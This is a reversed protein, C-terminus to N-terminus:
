LWNKGFRQRFEAPTWNYHYMAIEQGMSKLEQNLGRWNDHIKKHCDPCVSIWLGLEKSRSRYSTGFYIEHRVLDGGKGCIYCRDHQDQMISRAYGNRDLKEGFENTM